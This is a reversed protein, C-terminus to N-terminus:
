DALAALGVLLAALEALLTAAGCVDGTQGGIQRRALWAMGGAAAFAAAPSLFASLKAGAALGLVAAIV